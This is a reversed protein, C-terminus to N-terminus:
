IRRIDKYIMLLYKLYGIIIGHNDKNLLILVVIRTGSIMRYSWVPAMKFSNNLDYECMIIRITDWPNGPM